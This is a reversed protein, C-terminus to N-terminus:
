LNPVKATILFSIKHDNKVYVEKESEEHQPTQKIILLGMLKM